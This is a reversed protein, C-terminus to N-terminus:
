KVIRIGVKYIETQIFLIFLTKELSLYLSYIFLELEKFNQLMEYLKDWSM